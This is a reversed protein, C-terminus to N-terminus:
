KRNASRDFVEIESARKLDVGDKTVTFVVLGFRVERPWGEARVRARDRMVVRKSGVTYSLRQADVKAARKGLSELTVGGSGKLGIPKRKADLEVVVRGARGVLRKSQVADFAALDAGDDIVLRRGELLAPGRFRIHWRRLEGARTEYYADAAGATELRVVQDDRLQASFSKASVVLDDGQAVTAPEGDLAVVQTAGDYELRAGNLRRGDPGTLVVGGGAHLRDPRKAKESFVGRLTEARLTWSGRKALTAVVVVGDTAAFTRDKDLVIRAATVVGQDRREVSAPSGTLTTRDNEHVLRKGSLTGDPAEVTVALDAIMQRVEKKRLSLRLAGCRLTAEGLKVTVGRLAQAEMAEGDAALTIPGGSTVVVKGRKAGGLPGFRGDAVYELRKKGAIHVTYRKKGPAEVSLGDAEISGEATRAKIDGSAFIRGGEKWAELVRASFSGGGAQDRARIGDSVRARVVTRGDLFLDLAGAEFDLTREGLGFAAIRGSWRGHVPGECAIRGPSLMIARPLELYELGRARDSRLEIRVHGDLTARELEYHKGKAVLTATLSDGSLAGAEHDVEVRGQVTVTLPAGDKKQM